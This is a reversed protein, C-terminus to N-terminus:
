VKVPHMKGWGSTSPTSISTTAYEVAITGLSFETLQLSDSIVYPEDKSWKLELNSENYAGLFKAFM